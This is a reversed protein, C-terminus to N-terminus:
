VQQMPVIPVAARVADAVTSPTPATGEMLAQYHLPGALFRTVTAPDTDCHHQALVGAVEDHRDRWFQALHAQVEVDPWGLLAKILAPGDDTLNAALREALVRLDGALSGTDPPTSTTAFDRALDAVIGAPTGWRRYISSRHVGSRAAIAEMKMGPSGQQVLLERTAALVAQRTRATRGGPRAAGSSASTDTTSIRGNM